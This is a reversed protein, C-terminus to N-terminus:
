VHEFVDKQNSKESFVRNFTSEHYHSNDSVKISHSNHDLFVVSEKGIEHRM